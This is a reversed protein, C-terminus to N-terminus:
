HSNVHLMKAHAWKRDIYRRQQLAVELKQAIKYNSQQNNGESNLTNVYERNNGQRIQSKWICEGPRHTAKENEEYIYMYMHM